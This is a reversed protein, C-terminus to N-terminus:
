RPRCTLQEPKAATERDVLQAAAREWRAYASPFGSIQVRQAAVTMPLHQWGEVRQLARYFTRASYEPNTVQSVTGWGMSPRQQFLGRSDRDGYDINRLFSEQLATALAIVAARPPLDMREAVDIITRAHRRQVATSSLARQIGPNYGCAKQRAVLAAKAAEAAKREISQVREALLDRARDRAARALDRGDDGRKAADIRDRGSPVRGAPEVAKAPTQLSAVALGAAEGIATAASTVVTADESGGDLMVIGSVAVAAAAAAGAAAPARSPKPAARHRGGSTPVPAPASHRTRAQKAHPARHRNEPM